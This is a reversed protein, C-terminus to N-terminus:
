SVYGAVRLGTNISADNVVTLQAMSFSGGINFDGSVYLDSNFSVDGSVSLGENLSVDSAVTLTSQLESHGVVNLGANLSVDSAVRLGENLSVDQGVTLTSQLESHGAVNLGANLSVDSAIRLGDNLSVDSAVTLTSLMDVSGIFDSAGAVHLEDNLSVDGAVRLGTNISADNVVTLQTMAFSGGINFDGAVYLDSNFSVDGETILGSNINTDGQITIGSNLSVDGDVAMKDHVRLENDINLINLSVDDLYIKTTSSEYINIPNEYDFTRGAVNWESIAAFDFSPIDNLSPDNIFDNARDFIKSIILKHAKYSNGSSAYSTKVYSYSGDGVTESLSTLDTTSVTYTPTSVNFSADAILASHEIRQIPYWTDNASSDAGFIYFEKPLLAIGMKNDYDFANFSYSSLAFSVDSVLQIWEGPINGISTTTSIAPNASYVGGNVSDYAGDASTWGNTAITSDFLNFLQYDSQASSSYTKWQYTNDSTDTTNWSNDTIGSKMPNINISNYSTDVIFLKRLHIDGNMSIDGNSNVRIREEGNTFFKLENNDDGPVNEASIYTNKDVDTVGGLSGWANGAGFGEFQSTETNFRIYGQHGSGTSIPRELTTGAPLKIADTSGSLDLTVTPSGSVIGVKGSADIVMRQTGGTVFKLENNDSGPTDEASIYTNQDVDTVGGLSGWANGAGFGEFQSTETNFRIFGQHEDASSTPREATTGKPLRIADVSGSMDLSVIANDNGIALKESVNVGNFGIAGDVTLNGAVTLNKGIDINGQTIELNKKIIANGIINLTNNVQANGQYVADGKFTAASNITMQGATVKGSFLTDSTYTSKGTFQNTANSIMFNDYTTVGQFSTLGTATLTNVNTNGSVSLNGNLSLDDNSIQVSNSSSM